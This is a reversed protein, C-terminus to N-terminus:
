SPRQFGFQALVGAGPGALWGLFARAADKHLSTGIVVGAYTAEVNASAPIKITAVDSAALADTVYVIAADAEGLEIKAVVAKVNEEKSVINRSYADAFSAPYGPERALNAIAQQAYTTIPVQDGAAVVKVGPRALDVPAAIAAPNDAPLIITLLNGAFDIAEGDALEADVLAQPNTRDASLFLDAPAGEEIQIRLTSSSDTAVTITMGPVLAEYAAKTATMVDKLSAAAYISLAGAPSAPPVGTVRSCAAFLVLLVIGAFGRLNM